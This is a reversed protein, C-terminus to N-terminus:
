RRIGRSQELKDIKIKFTAQKSRKFKTIKESESTLSTSSEYSYQSTSSHHTSFMESKITNIKLEDAEIKNLKFINSLEENQYQKDGIQTHNYKVQNEKQIEKGIIKNQDNLKQQDIFTIVNVNKEKGNKKLETMNKSKILIGTTDSKRLREANKGTRRIISQEKTEGIRQLSEQKRQYSREFKEREKEAKSLTQSKNFAFIANLDENRYQKEGVRTHNFAIKESKPISALKLNNEKLYNQQDYYSTFNINNAKAEEKLQFTNKAKALVEKNISNRLEQIKPNDKRWETVESGQGIRFSDGKLRLGNNLSVAIAREITKNKERWDDYKKGNNMVRNFVIHVHYNDTDNHSAAIYQTNQLGALQIYEETIAKIEEKNLQKMDHESFSLVHMGVNKGILSNEAAQAKFDEVLAKRGILDFQDRPMTLNESNAIIEAQKNASTREALKGEYIYEIMGGITSGADTAKGIM